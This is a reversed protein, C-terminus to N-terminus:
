TTRWPNFQLSGTEKKVRRYALLIDIIPNAVKLRLKLLAKEDLSPKGTKKSRAVVPYDLMDHFYQICAKNSILPLKDTGMLLNMMRLYQMMLRDNEKVTNTLFAADYTIGQLTTIMYPRISDQAQQISELMGPIRKAYDLQELRILRMTHVDKACYQLKQNVQAVSMYGGAGEDKHFPAYLWMSICHGLSKELEPFIRHQAVMTDYVKRGIGIRYYIALVMFDYGSGNHAVCCNDRLAIALARLIRVTMEPSYALSYDHALLPVSVVPGAEFAFAFCIMHINGASDRETEMDFYFTCDKYKLLETEVYHSSPHLILELAVRELPLKGDFDLVRLAKQTDLRLWAPWNARDTAGHKRKESSADKVVKVDSVTVAGTKALLPNFDKEYNKNDVADQPLFSCIYVVGDKVVPSGRQEMLTTDLGLWEKICPEGLLLVCKTGPLLPSRESMLRIDCQNRHITKGLCETEFFMGGNATLLYYKDFRSPNSLVITLGIYGVKPPCRRPPMQATSHEDIM